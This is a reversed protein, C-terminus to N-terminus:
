VPLIDTRPYGITVGYRIAPAGEPITTLAVKHAEPIAERLVLGSELRTGVPLGGENVVIAVNDSAHVQISRPQSDSRMSDLDVGDELAHGNAPLRLFGFSPLYREQLGKIARFVNM